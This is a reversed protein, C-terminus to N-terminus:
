HFNFYIYLLTLQYAFKRQKALKGKFPQGVVVHLIPRPHTAQRCQHWRASHTMFGLQFNRGRVSSQPRAATALFITPPVSILLIFQLMGTHCISIHWPSLSLRQDSAAEVFLPQIGAPGRWLPLCFSLLTTSKWVLLHLFFIIFINVKFNNAPSPLCFRPSLPASRNQAFIGLLLSTEEFAACLLTSYLKGKCRRVCVWLFPPFRSQELQPQWKILDTKPFKNRKKNWKSTCYWWKGNHGLVGVSYSESEANM